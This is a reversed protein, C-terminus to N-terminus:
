EGGENQVIFDVVNLHGNAAALHLVTNGSNDQFHIRDPDENYLRRFEQIKGKSAAQYFFSTKSKSQFIIYAAM